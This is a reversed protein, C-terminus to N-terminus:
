KKDDRGGNAESAGEMIVRGTSEPRRRAESWGSSASSSKASVSALRACRRRQNGQSSWVRTIAAVSRKM